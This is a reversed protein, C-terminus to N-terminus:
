WGRSRLHITGRAKFHEDRFGDSMDFVPAVAADVRRGCSAEDM